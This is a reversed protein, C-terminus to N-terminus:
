PRASCWAPMCPRHLTNADTAVGGKVLRLLCPPQKGKGGNREGPLLLRRAGPRHPARDPLRRHRGDRHCAQVRLRQGPCQVPLQRLPLLRGPQHQLAPLRCCRALLALPPHRSCRPRRPAAMLLAAGSCGPSRRTRRLQPQWAPPLPPCGPQEGQPCGCGFQETYLSWGQQVDNAKKCQYMPTTSEATAGPHKCKCVPFLGSADCRLTPGCRVQPNKPGACPPAPPVPPRCSAAAPAPAADAAPAAPRGAAPTLKGNGQQLKRHAAKLTADTGRRSFPTAALTPRCIRRVVVLQSPVHGQRLWGAAPWERSTAM